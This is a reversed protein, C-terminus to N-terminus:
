ETHEDTGTNKNVEKLLKNIKDAYELTDDYYFILEPMYKLSIHKALLFRIHKKRLNIKEICKEPTDKNGLLSIYVKALRLDPSMIVKSITVLGIHLEMLDKSMATNLKHQIEESIKEVRFSM